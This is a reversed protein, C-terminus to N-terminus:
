GRETGEDAVALEGGGELALSRGDHNVRGPRQAVFTRLARGGAVRGPVEGARAEEVEASDIIGVAREVVGNAGGLRELGVSALQPDGVLMQDEVALPGEGSREGQRQQTVPVHGDEVAGPLGPSGAVSTEASARGM